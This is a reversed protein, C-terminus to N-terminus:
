LGGKGKEGKERKNKKESLKLLKEKERKSEGPRSKLLALKEKLSLSDYGKQREEAEKKKQEKTKM